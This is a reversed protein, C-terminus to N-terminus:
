AKTLVAAISQIGHTTKDITFQVRPDREFGKQQALELMDEAAMHGPKSNKRSPAWVVLKGEPVLLEHANTIGTKIEDEGIAHIGCAVVIDAMQPSQGAQRVNAIMDTTAAAVGDERGAYLRPVVQEIYAPDDNFRAAYYGKLFENVYPGKEIGVLMFPRQKQGIALLQEKIHHHAAIGPGYEIVTRPPTPLPMVHGGLSIYPLPNASIGVKRGRETLSIDVGQSKGTVQHAFLNAFFRVFGDTKKRLAEDGDTHLERIQNGFSGQSFDNHGFLTELRPDAPLSHHIEADTFAVAVAPSILRRLVNHDSALNRPLGAAECVEIMDGMSYTDPSSSM